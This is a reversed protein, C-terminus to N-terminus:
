PHASRAEPERADLLGPQKNSALCKVAPLTRPKLKKHRLSFLVCGDQATRTNSVSSLKTPGSKCFVMAEVVWSSGTLAASLILCSGRPDYAEEAKLIGYVMQLLKRMVATLVVKAPKGRQRLRQAFAHIAPDHTSAVVACM